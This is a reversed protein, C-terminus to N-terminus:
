KYNIHGWTTKGTTTNDYLNVQWVAPRNDKLRFDLTGRTHGACSGGGLNEGNLIVEFRTAGTFNFDVEVYYSDANIRDYESRGKDNLTVHLFSTRGNGYSEASGAWAQTDTAARRPVATVSYIGATGPMRPTPEDDTFTVHFQPEDPNGTAVGATDVEAAFSSVSFAMLMVVAMFLSIISKCKM